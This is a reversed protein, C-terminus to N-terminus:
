LQGPATRLYLNDRDNLFQRFRKKDIVTTGRMIGKTNLDMVVVMPLSAIRKLERSPSYGDGDNYLRKNDDLVPAVDQTHKVTLRDALDDYYATTTVNGDFVQDVPAIPPRWKM